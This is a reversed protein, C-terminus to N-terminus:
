VYMCVSVLRNLEHADHQVSGDMGTWRFGKETLEQTSVALRDVGSHSQLLSFLRQLELPITRPKSKSKKTDISDGSDGTATVLHPLPDNIGDDESHVLAYELASSFIDSSSSQAHSDIAQVCRYACPHSFGMAQLQEVVGEDVCENVAGSGEKEASAVTVRKESTEESVHAQQQQEGLDDFPDMLFLGGRLEPTLHLCQLLANLYCTAGQNELGVHM